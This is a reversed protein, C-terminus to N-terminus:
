DARNPRASVHESFSPRPLRSAALAIGARFLIGGQQTFVMSNPGLPSKVQRSIDFHYIFPVLLNAKQGIDTDGVELTSLQPATTLEQRYNDQANPQVTRQNILM